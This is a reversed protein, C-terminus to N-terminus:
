RGRPGVQRGGRKWAPARAKFAPTGVPVTRVDGVARRRTREGWCRPDLASRVAVVTRCRAAMDSTSRMAEWPGFDRAVAATGMPLRRGCAVEARREWRWSATAEEKREPRRRAGGGGRAYGSLERRWHTGRRAASGGGGAGNAAGHRRWAIDRRRAMM